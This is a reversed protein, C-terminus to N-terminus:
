LAEFAGTRRALILYIAGIVIPIVAITAALPKNNLTGTLAFIANGLFFGKGVLTPTLYDGMTLSFTFVSGAVVGPIALPLVVKRFTMWARAGLDSSAEIFSGPVRELSAYIPLVAFPFWLYCFTLWVAINSGTLDIGFKALLAHIPGGGELLTKWAFVRILYNAWLPITVALLLRVRVKPEAIRAAYYAFPFAFILDAITVAVAMGVTRLTIRYYTSTSLFVTKYTSFDNFRHQIRTTLPDLRWFSNALLLVLSVLYVLVIWGLPGALTLGLKTRPHRFLAASVRRLPGRGADATATTAM